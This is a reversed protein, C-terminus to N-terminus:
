PKKVWSVDSGKSGSDHRIVAPPAITSGSPFHELSGPHDQFPTSLDALAPNRAYRADTFICLDTLGYRQAMTIRERIFSSDERRELAAYVFVFIFVGTTAALYSLFVTSKRAVM